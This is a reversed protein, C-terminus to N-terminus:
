RTRHEVGLHHQRGVAYAERLWAGIEADLQRLEVIRLLHLHAAPNITEVKQFRPSAIRRPLWFGVDLSHARPIAAAFRVREMLGIRDRYVITKVPGCAAVMDLFREYLRRVDPSARGLVDDIAYRKCSHWQNRNVFDNGCKPCTWLPRGLAGRGTPVRDGLLHKVTNEIRRARAASTRADEIWRVLERKHSSTLAAWARKAKGKKVLARQLDTTPRESGTGLPTLEFVASDGTDVGAAARM